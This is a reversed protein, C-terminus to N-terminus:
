SGGIAAKLAAILQTPADGSAPMGRPDVAAVNAGADAASVRVLFNSGQFNVDFVGLLAARSAVEVGDIAALASDVKAFVEDRTGAANFGVGTGAVPAVPAAPAVPAVEAAPVAASAAAAANASPIAMAGGTRPLDLDPPVELPRSDPSQAYLKNEKRLWGCGSAAVVGVLVLSAIAIRSFSMPRVTTAHM